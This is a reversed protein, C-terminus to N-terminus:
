SGRRPEDSVKNKVHLTGSQWRARVRSTEVLINKTGTRTGINVSVSEGSCLSRLKFFLGSLRAIAAEARGERGAKLKLM